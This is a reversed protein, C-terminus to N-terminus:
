KNKLKTLNALLKDHKEEDHLLYELLYNAFENESEQMAEKALNIVKHEMEDHEEILHWFEDLEEKSMSIEYKDFSDIILQQVRRHMVSDQRIVEMVIQVLPNTTSRIIETTSKVAEDEIHQWAKLVKILKDKNTESM